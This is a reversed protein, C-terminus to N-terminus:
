AVNEVALCICSRAILTEVCERLSAEFGIELPRFVHICNRYNQWSEVVRRLM